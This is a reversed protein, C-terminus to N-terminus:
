IMVAKMFNCDMLHYLCYFIKRGFNSSYIIPSTNASDAPTLSIITWLPSGQSNRTIDLQYNLEDIQAIQCDPSPTVSSTSEYEPLHRIITKEKFFINGAEQWYQYDEWTGNSFFQFGDVFEINQVTNVIGTHNDWVNQDALIYSGPGVSFLRGEGM